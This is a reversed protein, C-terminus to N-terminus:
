REQLLSGGELRKILLMAMNHITHPGKMLVVEKDQFSYFKIMFQKIVNM